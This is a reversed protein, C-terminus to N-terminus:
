RPQGPDGVLSPAVRPDGGPGIVAIAQSAVALQPRLVAEHVEAGGGHVPKLAKALDLQFLSSKDQLGGTPDRGELLRHSPAVVGGVFARLFGLPTPAILEVRCGRGRAPHRFRATAYRVRPSGGECDTRRMRLRGGVRHCTRPTSRFQASDPPAGLQPPCIALVRNSAPILRSTMRYPSWRLVGRRLPHPT